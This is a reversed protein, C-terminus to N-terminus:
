RKKAGLANIDGDQYRRVMIWVQAAIVVFTQVAATLQDTGIQIGIMPLVVVLLSVLAATYQHSIM